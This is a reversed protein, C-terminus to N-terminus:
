AIMLSTGHGLESLLNGHMTGICEVQITKVKVVGVRCDPLLGECENERSVSTCM